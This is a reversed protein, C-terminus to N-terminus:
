WRIHNGRYARAKLAQLRPNSELLNAATGRIEEIGWAVDAAQLEAQLQRTKTSDGDYVTQFQLAARLVVTMWFAVPWDEPDTNWVARGPVARVFAKTPDDLYRYRGGSWAAGVGPKAIFSILNHPSHIEGATDPTLTTDTRNFYWGWALQAQSHLDYASLAADRFAHDEDLSALPTFGM